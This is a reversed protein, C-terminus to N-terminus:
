KRCLILVSDSFLPYNKGLRCMLENFKISAKDSISSLLIRFYVIAFRIPGVFVLNFGLVTLIKMSRTQLSKCLNRVDYESIHGGPHVEKKFFKLYLNRWSMSMNPTAIIMYGNRKLVRCWEDLGMEPDLLHELIESAFVSNFIGAKLPLKTADAVLFHSDQHFRRAKLLMQKDTDVHVYSKFRTFNELAFNLNKGIGCSSGVDLIIEFNFLDLLRKVVRVKEIVYARDWGLDQTKTEIMKFSYDGLLM